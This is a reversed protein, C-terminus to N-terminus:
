RSQRRLRNAKSERASLGSPLRGAKPPSPPIGTGDRDARNGLPTTKRGGGRGATRDAQRVPQRGRPFFSPSVTNWEPSMFPTPAAQAGTATRDAYGSDAASYGRWM